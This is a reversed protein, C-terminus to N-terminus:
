HSSPGSNKEKKPHRWRASLIETFKWIEIATLALPEGYGTARLVSAWEVYPLVRLAVPYHVRAGSRHRKHLYLLFLSKGTLQTTRPLWTPPWTARAGHSTLAMKAYGSKSVDEQSRLKRSSGHRLFPHLRYALSTKEYRISLLNWTHCHESKTCSSKWAALKRMSVCGVVEDHGEEKERPRIM